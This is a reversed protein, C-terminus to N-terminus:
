NTNRQQKEQEEFAEANEMAEELQAELAVPGFAGGHSKVNEFDVVPM